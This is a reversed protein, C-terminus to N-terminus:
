CDRAFAERVVLTMVAGSDVAVDPCMVRYRHGGAEVIAGDVSGADPPLPIDALAWGPREEAKYLAEKITWARLLSEDSVSWAESQTASLFRRAVRRLQAGRGRSEVDVGIRRGCASVALAAVGRCHSVSVSGNGGPLRPAGDPTHELVEVTGGTAELLLARVAAREAVARSVAGRGDPCPVVAAHVSVDDASFVLM